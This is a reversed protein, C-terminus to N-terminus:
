QGLERAFTGNANFEFLRSGAHYFTRSDGLTAYPHGTRTYVLINGKSTTAVGAVEGLFTNAPMKFLDANSDFPIEPVATQAMLSITIAFTAIGLAFTLTRKM